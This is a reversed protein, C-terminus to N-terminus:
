DLVRSFFSRKIKSSKYLEPRYPKGRVIRSKLNRKKLEKKLEPIKIKLDYGLLIVDPQYEELVKYKDKADGLVALSVGPILSVKVLRKSQSYRPKKGKQKKVNVDRAVVAIVETAYKSAQKAYSLHGPHIIDFTGFVMVRKAKVQKIKPM